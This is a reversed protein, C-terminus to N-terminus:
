KTEDVQQLIAQYAHSTLHFGLSKLNDLYPKVESIAGAEKLLCLIKGTRFVQLERKTAQAYGKREDLIVASNTFEAQAIVAAEGADLITKLIEKNLLDDQTCLEFFGTMEDLLKRLAAAQPGKDAEALVEPPYLIKAFILPLFEVITLGALRSLLTNDIVAIPLNPIKSQAM